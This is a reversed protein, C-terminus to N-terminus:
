SGLINGIIKEGVTCTLLQFISNGQQTPGSSDLGQCEVNGFEIYVHELWIQVIEGPFLPLWGGGVTLFNVNQM